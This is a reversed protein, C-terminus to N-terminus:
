RSPLCRSSGALCISGAKTAPVPGHDGAVRQGSPIAFQTGDPAREASNTVMAARHDNTCRPDALSPEHTLDKGAGFGGTFARAPNDAGLRGALKGQASEGSRKALRHDIRYGVNSANDTGKDRLLPLAPHQDAYVIRM